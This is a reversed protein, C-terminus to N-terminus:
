EDEYTGQPTDAEDDPPRRMTAATRGSPTAPRAPGEPVEIERRESPPKAFPTTADRGRVIPQDVRSRPRPPKPLKDRTVYGEPPTGSKRRSRVPESM